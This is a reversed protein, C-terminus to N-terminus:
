FRDQFRNGKFNKRGRLDSQLLQEETLLKRFDQRSKEMSKAIKAKVQGIKGISANIAKIDPSDATILTQHHAKLERLEDRLPKTTKANELWIDKGASKQEETLFPENGRMGQNESQPNQRQRFDMSEGRGQRFSNEFRQGKPSFEDSENKGQCFGGGQEDGAREHRAEAVRGNREGRNDRRLNVAMKQEETLLGRIELRTNTQIEALRIKVASIKDIGAYIAEMDPKLATTLTHQHAELERLEDKLPKSSEASKLRISKIQEKQEETFWGQGDMEPSLPEFGPEFEDSFEPPEPAAPEFAPNFEEALAGPLDPTAAEFGPSSEDNFQPMQAQLTGSFILAAFTAMM